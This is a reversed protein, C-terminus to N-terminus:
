LEHLSPVEIDFGSDIMLKNYKSLCKKCISKTDIRVRQQHLPAFDIVGDTHTYVDDDDVKIDKPIGRLSLGNYTGNSFSYGNTKSVADCLVTHNVAIHRVRTAWALAVINEQENRM